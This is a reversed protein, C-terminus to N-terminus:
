PRIIELKEGRIWLQEIWAISENVHVAPNGLAVQWHDVAPKMVQYNLITSVLIADELTELQADDLQYEERYGSVLKGLVHSTLAPSANPVCSSPYLYHAFLIMGLDMTRWGYCGLDFDIVQIQGAEVLFNGAHLDRHVLGYHRPVTPRKRLEDLFATMARVVEGNYAAPLPAAFQTLKSEYWHKRNQEPPLCLEDSARHIRGVERGLKEFLEDNWRTDVLPYITEGAFREFCAVHMVRHNTEITELLEGLRSLIPTTVTCGKRNLHNLWLLEGAVEGHSRLAGDGIRVIVPEGDMSETGFVHNLGDRILVTKEPVLDWRDFTQELAEHYPTSDDVPLHNPDM